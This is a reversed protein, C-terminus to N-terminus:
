VSGFKFKDLVHIHAPITVHTGHLRKTQKNKAIDEYALALFNWTTFGKQQM